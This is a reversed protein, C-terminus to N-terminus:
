IADKGRLYAATEFRADNLKKELWTFKDPTGLGAEKATLIAELVEDLAAWVLEQREQEALNAALEREYRALDQSVACPLM